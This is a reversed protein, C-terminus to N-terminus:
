IPYGEGICQGRWLPKMPSSLSVHSSRDCATNNVAEGSPKVPSSLSAGSTVERHAPSGAHPARIAVLVEAGAFVPDRPKARM